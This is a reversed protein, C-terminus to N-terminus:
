YSDINYNIKTLINVRSIHIHVNLITMNDFNDQLDTNCHYIQDFKPLILHIFGLFYRTRKAISEILVM